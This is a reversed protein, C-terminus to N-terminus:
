DKLILRSPQCKEIADNLMAVSRFIGHAFNGCILAAFVAVSRTGLGLQGQPGQGLVANVYLFSLIM